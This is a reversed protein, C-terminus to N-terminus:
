HGYRRYLWAAGGVLAASKLAFQWPAAMASEVVGQVAGMVTLVANRVHAGKGSLTIMHSSGASEKVYKFGRAFMAKHYAVLAGDIDEFRKADAIARVLDQADMFTTNAGMGRHTTMAHAADGLLVVRGGRGQMPDTGKPPIEINNVDVTNVIEPSGEVMQFFEEHFGKCLHHRLLKCLEDRSLNAPPAQESRLTIVWIAMPQGTNDDDYGFTLVTAGTTGMLRTMHHGNMFPALSPTSPQQCEAYISVLNAPVAKLEPCRQARVRSQVGDAAILLDGTAETGDEFEVVIKDASETYRVFRKNFEVHLGQLMARRLKVRGVRWGGNQITLYPRNQADCVRFAIGHEPFVGQWHPKVASDFVPSKEVLEALAARGEPSIGLQYGQARADPAADREFVVVDHGHQLLGHAAALGGMGGGIVLIRM